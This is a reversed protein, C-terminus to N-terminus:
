IIKPKYHEALHEPVQLFANVHVIDGKKFHNAAGGNLTVMFDNDGPIVYTSIRGKHYKANVEVREYPYLNAIDMLKRPITISGECEKDMHMITLESIKSKLVTIM